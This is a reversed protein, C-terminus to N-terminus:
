KDPTQAIESQRLLAEVLTVSDEPLFELEGADERQCQEAYWARWDATDDGVIPSRGRPMTRDNVRLARNVHKAMRLGRERETMTPRPEPLSPRAERRIREHKRCLEDLQGANPLWRPHVVPAERISAMIIQEDYRRLVDRYAAVTLAWDEPTARHAPYSGRLITIAQAFRKPHM